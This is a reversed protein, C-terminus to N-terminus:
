STSTQSELEEIRKNIADLESKIAGADDRLMNVEEEPTMNYPNGYPAYSASGYWGGYPPYAWRRGFGRGYGMGRGYGRGFGGRFGRGWGMGYGRGYVPPGYAYGAPNCYGRAGGTMPGQGWPGTGDFGPM